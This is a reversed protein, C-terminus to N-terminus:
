AARLGGLFRELAARLRQAQTALQDAAGNVHGAQSHTESAAQAIGAINDNVQHSGSAAESM